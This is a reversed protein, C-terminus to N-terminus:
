YLLCCVHSILIVPGFTAFGLYNSQKDGAKGQWNASVDRGLESPWKSKRTTVGRFQAYSASPDLGRRICNGAATRLASNLKVRIPSPTMLEVKASLRLCFSAPSSDSPSRRTPAFKRSESRAVSFPPLLKWSSITLSQVSSSTSRLNPNSTSSAIAEPLYLGNRTSSNSSCPDAKGGVIASFSKRRSASPSISQTTLFPTLKEVTSAINPCSM